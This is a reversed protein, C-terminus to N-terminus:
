PRSNTFFKKTISPSSHIRSVARAAATGSINCPRRVDATLGLANCKDAYLTRGAGTTSPSIRCRRRGRASRVAQPAQSFTRARPTMGRRSTVTRAPRERGEISTPVVWKARKRKGFGARAEPSAPPKPAPEAGPLPPLKSGIADQPKRAISPKIPQRFSKKRLRIKEGRLQLAM